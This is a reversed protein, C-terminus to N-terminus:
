GNDVKTIGSYILEENKISIRTIKGKKLTSDKKPNSLIGKLIKNPLKIDM